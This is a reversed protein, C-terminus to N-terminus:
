SRCWRCTAAFSRRARDPCAPRRGLPRLTRAGARALLRMLVFGLLTGLAGLLYFSSRWGLSQGMFGRRATGGAITGAYVSSQHLSMARSRTDRGHYDSLMSMSAPFYFAEGLGELARFLGPALLADVAGHRRHDLVLVDPRWHDPRAASAIASSAPLPPPSPTVWMFSAGIIGLQVDSLAMEAKLLPFVSSIAQRDAYNFFCVFWLMGVLAWKYSPFM